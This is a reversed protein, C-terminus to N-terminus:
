LTEIAETLAETSLTKTTYHPAIVIFSHTTEEVKFTEPFRGEHILKPIGNELIETYGKEVSEDGHLYIILPYRNRDTNYAAPLSQYYGDVTKEANLSTNLWRLQTSRFQALAPAHLILFSFSLLFLSRCLYMLKM